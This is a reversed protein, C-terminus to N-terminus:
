GACFNVVKTAKFIVAFGMGLLGYLAGVSLAAGLLALLYAMNM